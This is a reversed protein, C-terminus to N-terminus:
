VNEIIWVRQIYLSFKLIISLILKLSRYHGTNLPKVTGINHISLTIKIFTYMISLRLYSYTDKSYVNYMPMPTHLTYVSISM